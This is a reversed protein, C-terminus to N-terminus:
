NSIPSVFSFFDILQWTIKFSFGHTKGCFLIAMIGSLHIGEALVYPALIKFIM